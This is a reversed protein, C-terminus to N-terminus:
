PARLRHVARCRLHKCDLLAGIRHGGIHALRNQGIGSEALDEGVVHGGDTVGIFTAPVIGLDLWTTRERDIRGGSHQM